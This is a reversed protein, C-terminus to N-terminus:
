NVFSSSLIIFQYLTRLAEYNQSRIEEFLDCLEMIAVVHQDIQKSFLKKQEEKISHKVMFKLINAIFSLICFPDM